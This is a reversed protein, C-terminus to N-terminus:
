PLGALRAASKGAVADWAVKGDADVSEADLVPLIGEARRHGKIPVRRGDIEVWADGSWSSGLPMFAGVPINRLNGYTWRLQLRDAHTDVITKDSSDPLAVTMRHPLGFAYSFDVNMVPESGAACIVAALNWWM